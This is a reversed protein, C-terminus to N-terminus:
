APLIEQPSPRWEALLPAPRRGSRLIELSAPGANFLLDIAAAHSAFPPYLQPYTPHVFNQIRVEIGRRDFSEREQLLYDVAGVPSLYSVAGLSECIAAILESRKGEPELTSARVFRPSLGLASALWEILAINLDALNGTVAATLKAAFAPFYDAFYAARGYSQEIAALHKRAFATGALEVADITQGFRGVHRVPVTIFQLGKATKIRNRQHWSQKSFQVNDLLVFTDASDILDFYGIWPLYTPQMIAVRLTM